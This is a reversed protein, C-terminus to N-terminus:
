KSPISPTHQVPLNSGATAAPSSASTKPVQSQGIVMGSGFSLALSLLNLVVKESLTLSFSVSSKTNDSHRDHRKNQTM